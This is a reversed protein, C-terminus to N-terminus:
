KNLRLIVKSVGYKTGKHPALRDHIMFGRNSRHRTRPERASAEACFMEHAVHVPATARKPCSATLSLVVTPIRTMGESNGLNKAGDNGVRAGGGRRRSGKERDRLRAVTANSGVRGEVIRHVIGEHIGYLGTLTPNISQSAKSLLWVHGRKDGSCPKLETFAGNSTEKDKASM